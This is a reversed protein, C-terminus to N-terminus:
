TAVGVIRLQPALQYPRWDALVMRERERYVEVADFAVEHAATGPMTLTAIKDLAM